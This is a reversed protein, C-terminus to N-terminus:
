WDPVFPTTVRGPRPRQLTLRVAAATDRTNAPRPIPENPTTSGADGTDALGANPLQVVVTPTTTTTSKAGHFPVISRPHPPVALSPTTARCSAPNVVVPTDAYPVANMQRMLPSGADAEHLEVGGASAYQPNHTASGPCVVQDYLVSPASDIQGAGPLTSAHVKPALRDGGVKEGDWTRAVLAEIEPLADDAQPEVGVVDLWLLVPAGVDLPPRPECPVPDVGLEDLVGVEVVDVVAGTSLTPDVVVEGMTEEAPPPPVAPVRSAGEAVEGVVSGAGEREESRCTVGTSRPLPDGILDGLITM